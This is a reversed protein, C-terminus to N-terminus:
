AVPETANISEVRFPPLDEITQKLLGSKWQGPVTAKNGIYGYNLVSGCQACLLRSVIALKGMGMTAVPLGHDALQFEVLRMIDAPEHLLAAVKFAAAGADLARKAADELLQTDPLKQFDHFSAIWPIKASQVTELLPTLERISAVEVDICAAEDLLSELLKMREAADIDIAGGEALRRATFILPVGVLHRWLPIDVRGTAAAVLDLRIEAFDCLKLVQSAEATAMDNRSGFSGVVYPIGSNLSKNSPTM